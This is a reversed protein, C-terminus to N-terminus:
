GNKKALGLDEVEESTDAVEDGSGVVLLHREKRVKELEKEKEEREGERKREGEKRLPQACM